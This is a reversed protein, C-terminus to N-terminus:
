KDEKQFWRTLWAPIGCGADCGGHRECYTMRVNKWLLFGFVLAILLYLSGSMWDGLYLSQLSLALFVLTIILCM